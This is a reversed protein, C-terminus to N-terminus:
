LPIFFRKPKKCSFLVRTAKGILNEEPIFGWYRSDHSQLLNDGLCFFYNKQFTYTKTSDGGCKLLDNLIINMTSNELSIIREYLVINKATLKVTIDKGPILLPGFDLIGWKVISTDNPFVSLGPNLGSIILGSPVSLHGIQNQNVLVVGKKICVTDKPLAVIRKILRTETAVVVSDKGWFVWIEEHKPVLSDEVPVTVMDGIMLTPHMSCSPIYYVGFVFFRIVFGLGLAVTFILLIRAKSM